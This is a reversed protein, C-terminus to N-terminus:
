DVSFIYCCNDWWWLLIHLFVPCCSAQGDGGHKLPAPCSVSVTDGGGPQQKMRLLACCRVPSQRGRAALRRPGPSPLCLPPLALTVSSGMRCLRWLWGPCRWRFRDPDIRCSGTRYDWKGINMELCPVPFCRRNFVPPWCQWRCIRPELISDSVLDMYMYASCERVNRLSAAWEWQSSCKNESCCAAGTPSHFRPKGKCLDVTVWSKM